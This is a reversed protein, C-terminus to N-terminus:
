GGAGPAASRDASSAAAADSGDQESGTVPWPSGPEPQQSEGGHENQMQM